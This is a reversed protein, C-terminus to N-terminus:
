GKGYAGVSIGTGRCLDEAKHLSPDSAPFVGAILFGRLASPDKRYIYLGEWLTGSNRYTAHHFTGEEQLRVLELITM